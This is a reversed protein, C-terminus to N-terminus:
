HKCKIRIQDNIYALVAEDKVKKMSKVELQKKVEIKIVYLSIGNM